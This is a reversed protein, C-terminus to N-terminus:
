LAQPCYVAKAYQLIRAANSDDGASGSLCAQRGINVLETNSPRAGVWGIKVGAIFFEDASYSDDYSSAAAPDPIAAPASGVAPSACASLALVAAM